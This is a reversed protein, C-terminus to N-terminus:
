RWPNDECPLAPPMHPNPLAFQYAGGIKKYPSLKSAFVDQWGVAVGRSNTAKTYSYGVFSESTFASSEGNKEKWASIEDATTLVMKPVALAWIEGEFTEDTLDAAPYQYVGDNLLSGVVRFYQGNVLFPLTISGGEITYTGSQIDRVFWNNLYSLVEELM